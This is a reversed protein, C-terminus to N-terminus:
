EAGGNGDNSDDAPELNLVTGPLKSLPALEERARVAAAFIAEDVAECRLRSMEDVNGSFTAIILTFANRANRLREEVSRSM